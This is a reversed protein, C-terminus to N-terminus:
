PLHIIYYMFPQVCFANLEETNIDEEGWLFFVCKRVKGTEGLAHILCIMMVDGPRKLNVESEEFSLGEKGLGDGGGVGGIIKM